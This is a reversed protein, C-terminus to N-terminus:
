DDVERGWCDTCPTGLCGKIPSPFGLAMPCFKPLEPYTEDKPANPYKEFFDDAMTKIPHDILWKEVIAVAEETYTTIYEDCMLDTKNNRRFLPCKSCSPHSKCLGDMAKIYKVADM